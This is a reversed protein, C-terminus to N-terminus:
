ALAEFQIPPPGKQFIVNYLSLPAQLIQERKKQSKIRLSDVIIIIIVMNKIIINTIIINIVIIIIIIVIIVCVAPKQNGTM